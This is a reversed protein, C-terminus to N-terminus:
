VARGGTMIIFPAASGGAAWGMAGIGPSGGPWSNGAADTTSSDGPYSAAKLASNKPRFGARVWALLGTTAQGILAPNAALTALAGAVTAVSGGAATGGWTAIGRTSDVFSPNVSTQDGTGIQANPFAGTGSVKIGSYGTVGAQSTSTDHTCTGTNPNWFANYGAITVADV